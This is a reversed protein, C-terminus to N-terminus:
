PTDFRPEPSFEELDPSFEEPGIRLELSNSHSNIPDFDSMKTKM